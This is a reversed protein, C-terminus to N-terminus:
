DAHSNMTEPLHSLRGDNSQAPQSGSVRSDRAPIIILRDTTAHGLRSSTGVSM